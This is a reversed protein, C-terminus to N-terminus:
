LIREKRALPQPRPNREISVCWITALLSPWSLVDSSSFPLARSRRRGLPHIIDSDEEHFSRITDASLYASPVCSRPALISHMSVLGSRIVYRVFCGAIKLVTDGIGESGLAILCCVRRM